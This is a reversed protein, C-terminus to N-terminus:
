ALSAGGHEMDPAMQAAPYATPLYPRWSRNTLRSLDFGRSARALGASLALPKPGTAGRRSVATARSEVPAYMGGCPPIGFVSQHNHM